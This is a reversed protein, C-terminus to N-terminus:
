RVSQATRRQTCRAVIVRRYYAFAGIGLGQNEARRGKLFYDYEPRILSILKSPLSPGFAPDEGFKYLDGIGAEETAIAWIAYTKITRGCNKCGYIVFFQKSAAGNNLFLREQTAFFRTGDCDSSCHLKIQPLLSSRTHLTPRQAPNPTNPDVSAIGSVTAWKGPAVNEFFEALTIPTESGRKEREM